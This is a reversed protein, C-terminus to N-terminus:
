NIVEIIPILSLKTSWLSKKVGTVIVLLLLKKM